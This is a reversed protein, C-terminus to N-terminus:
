CDTHSLDAVFVVPDSWPGFGPNGARVMVSYEVGFTLGVLTTATELLGGAGVERTAVVEQAARDVVVFEWRRLPRDGSDPVSAYVEVGGGVVAGQDLQRWTCLFVGTVLALELVAM